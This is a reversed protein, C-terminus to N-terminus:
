KSCIDQLLWEGHLVRDFVAKAEALELAQTNLGGARELKGLEDRYRRLLKLDQLHMATIARNIVLAARVTPSLEKGKEFADYAALQRKRYAEIGDSSGKAKFAEDDQVEGRENRHGIRMRHLPPARGGFFHNLTTGPAESYVYTVSEQHLTTMRGTKVTYPDCSMNPPPNECGGSRTDEGRWEHRVIVEYLTNTDGLKPPEWRVLNWSMGRKEFDESGVVAVWSKEITKVEPRRPSRVKLKTCAHLRERSQKSQHPLEQRGTASCRVSAKNRPGRILCRITVLELPEGPRLTGPTLPAPAKLADDTHMGGYVYITELSAQVEYGGISASADPQREPVTSGHTSAEPPATPNTPPTSCAVSLCLALGLRRDM